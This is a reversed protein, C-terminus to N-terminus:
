QTYDQCSNGGRTHQQGRYFVPLCPCRQVFHKDYIMNATYCMLMAFDKCKAFEEDSVPQGMKECARVTYWGDQAAKGVTGHYTAGTALWEDKTMCLDGSLRIEKKEQRFRIVTEASM